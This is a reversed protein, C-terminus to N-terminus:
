ADRRLNRVIARHARALWAPRFRWKWWTRRSRAPFVINASNREVGTLIERAASEAELLMRPASRGVDNGGARVLSDHFSSKVPGPCVVSVNVGFEAAEARLSLSFGVVAHKAAAYPAAGPVPVLGALSATNVIHGGGHAAMWRYAALTGYVCSWYNVDFLDRWQEASFERADGWCGVGANNFVFDLRQRAALVSQVAADMALRDRVDLAIPQAQGGHSQIEQVVREAGQADCDCVFVIAGRGALERCLAAGIGSAGGTVVAVRDRYLEQLAM